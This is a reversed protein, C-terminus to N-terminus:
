LHMEAETVHWRDRDGLRARDAEPLEPHIYILVEEDRPRQFFGARRLASSVSGDGFYLMSIFTAPTSRSWRVFDALLVAAAEADSAWLDHIAQYPVDHKPCRENDFVLYGRLDGAPDILGLWRSESNPRRRFRWTLFHSRRALLVKGRSTSRAWLQDFRPDFETGFETRWGSPMRRSRAAARLQLIRDAVRAVPRSLWGRSLKRRVNAETRLPQVWREVKGLSRYGARRLVAVATETVGLVFPIRQDGVTQTLARQLQLAPLVSRHERNVNIHIAQAATVSQGGFQMECPMLGTSGVVEGADTSVLWHSVAGFPNGDVMWDYWADWERPFNRKWLRLLEHRAAEADAPQNVVYKM